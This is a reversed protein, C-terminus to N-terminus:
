RPRSGYDCTYQHILSIIKRFDEIVIDVLSNNLFIFDNVSGNYNWVDCIPDSHTIHHRLKLYNELNFILDPNQLFAEAFNINYYGLYAKKCIDWNQFNICRNNVIFNLPSIPANLAKAFINKGIKDKFNQKFTEFYTQFREQELELFRNKCYIEFGSVLLSITARCQAGHLRYEESKGLLLSEISFLSDEWLKLAPATYSIFEDFIKTGKVETDIRLISGSNPPFVDLTFDTNFLTGEKLGIIRAVDGAALTIERPSWQLFIQLAESEKFIQLDIRRGITGTSPSFFIFELIDNQSKNLIWIRRGVSLELIKTNEKKNVLLDQIRLVFVFKGLPSQDFAAVLEAKQRNCNIPILM